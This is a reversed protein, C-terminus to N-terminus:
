TVDAPERGEEISHVGERRGSIGGPLRSDRQLFEGLPILVVNDGEGLIHSLPLSAAPDAPCTAAPDLHYDGGGGSRWEPRPRPRAFSFHGPQHARTM